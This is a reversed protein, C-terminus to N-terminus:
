HIRPGNPNFELHCSNCTKTMNQIEENLAKINYGSAISKINKGHVKLQDALRIFREKDQPNNFRKQESEQPYKKIEQSITILKDALRFAYRQREEDRELESIHREYFVNNMDHMVRKMNNSINSHKQTQATEQPSLELNKTCGLILTSTTVALILNTLRKKINM